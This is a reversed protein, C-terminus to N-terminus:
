ETKAQLLQESSGAVGRQTPMVELLRKTARKRRQYERSKAIRCARCERKGTKFVYVNDPTLEHGGNKCHSKRYPRARLNESRTQAKLHEPNVCRRHTCTRWDQCSKDRDHCTHGIDHDEPVPGIHYEYSLIHARRSSHGYGKKTIFGPWPWCGNEDPVIRALHEKFSLNQKPLAALSGHCRSRSYCTGCLGRAGSRPKREQGCDLCPKDNRM